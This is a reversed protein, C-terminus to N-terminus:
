SSDPRYALREWWDFRPADKRPYFRARQHVSRLLPGIEGATMGSLKTWEYLLEPTQILPVHPHLRELLRITKRDDTWGSRRAFSGDRM